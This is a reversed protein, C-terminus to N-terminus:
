LTSRVETRRAQQQADNIQEVSVVTPRQAFQQMLEALQNGGAMGGEAYGRTRGAELAAITPQYRPSEVMRKPVVYEGKHVVGAPEYKGGEGTYGGEAFEPIQQSAILATQAAGLAAVVGALAFNAPPPVSGLANTVGVATNTISQTVDAAKQAVAAKRQAARQQEAIKAEEQAAQRKQALLQAEQKREAEIAKILRARDNLAATALRDELRLRREASEEAAENALDIQEQLRERQEELQEAQRQFIEGVIQAGVQVLENAKTASDAINSLVDAIQANISEISASTADEIAQIAETTSNKTEDAFRQQEITALQLENRLQQLRATQTKTLEGEADRTDEIGQIEAEIAEQRQKFLAQGQALIRQEQQLVDEVARAQRQRAELESQSAEIAAIRLDVIETQAQKELDLRAQTLTAASELTAREAAAAQEIRTVRERDLEAEQVALEKRLETAKQQEEKTTGLLAVQEEVFARRAALSQDLLALEEELTLRDSEIKRRNVEIRSELEVQGRDLAAIRGEAELRAIANANQVQTNLRQNQLEILQTQLEAQRELDEESSDTIANQAELIRLRTALEKEQNALVQAELAAANRLAQTRQEFSKTTDDAIARQQEAQGALKANEVALARAAEALEQEQRKLDAAAQAADGLEKTLGALKGSLDTVGTVTQTIADGLEGFTEKADSLNGSFVQQAVTGLLQYTEILGNIRNTVQDVILQGFDELAQRPNSFANIIAKGLNSLKDSLTGVVAGLGATIRETLQVGERFQTLFNIVAGLAVVLAGIGTSIIAGRLTKFARAAILVGNKLSALTGVAAGIPGFQTAANAANSGLQKVAESSEQAPSKLGNLANKAATYEKQAQAFQETGFEANKFTKELDRVTGELENISKVNQEVGNVALRFAVVEEAM